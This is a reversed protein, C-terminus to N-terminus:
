TNHALILRNVSYYKKQLSEPFIQQKGKGAQLSRKCKRAQLREEMKLALLTADEFKEGRQWRNGDKGRRRQSVSEQKERKLVEKPQM